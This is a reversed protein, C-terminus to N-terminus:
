DETPESENILAKIDTTLKVAREYETKRYNPSVRIVDIEISEYESQWGRIMAKDYEDIFEEFKLARKCSDIINTILSSRFVTDQDRLRDVAREAFMLIDRLLTERAAQSKKQLSAKLQAELEDQYIDAFISDFNDPVPEMYYDMSFKKRIEEKSPYESAKYLDGLDDVAELCLHEYVELFKDVADYYDQKADNMMGMYDYLSATQLYRAGDSNWPITMKNHAARARNAASMVADIEPGSILTKYFRARDRKTGHENAIIEVASLDKKQASWRSINLGVLLGKKRAKM